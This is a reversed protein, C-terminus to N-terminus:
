PAVAWAQSSMVVRHDELPDDVARLQLKDQDLSWTYNFQQGGGGEVLLGSEHTFTVRDGDVTYTGRVIDVGKNVLTYRGDEGLILQWDGVYGAKTEDGDFAEMPITTTFTGSPFAAAQPPGVPASCASALLALALLFSTCVFGLRASM